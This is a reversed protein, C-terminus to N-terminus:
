WKMGLLRALDFLVEDAAAILRAKAELLSARDAPRESLQVYLKLNRSTGSPRLTVFSRKDESLYFRMGEEPFVAVNSFFFSRAAALRETRSASPDPAPMGRKVMLDTFADEAAEDGPPPLLVSAREAAESMTRHPRYGHDPDAAYKGKGPCIEVDTVRYGAIELGDRLARARLEEARHLHFLKRQIANVGEYQGVPPDPRYRNVYLALGESLTLDDLLDILTKGEAKAHAAVEAILLAALTGDKDRVHGGEGLANPSSPPGGLISFGNSEEFCGLNYDRVGPEYRHHAYLTSFRRTDYEEKEFVDLGNWAFSVAEALLSFGVWTKIWALGKREALETILDSTVHSQAIFGRRLLPSNEAELKRLRHALLLAWVEDAKLLTWEGGYIERQEPPVKVVVGMRDADPDTGILIDLEGFREEGHEAIFAEVAIRASSPDGPDPQQTYEFCPFFGDPENMSRHTVETIREFGASRLLRPVLRSGAGYFACYGIELSPALPALAAPDVIFSRMHELYAPHLDFVASSAPREADEPGVVVLRSAFDEIPPLDPVDAFDTKLVYDRYIREREANTLQAGTASTLKYGNYRKDNHSASIFVGLDAGFRVVAFSLEPFPCPEAFLHVRLGASLFLRAILSAFRPGGIRSDFGVVAGQLSNDAAFRAVAASLRLVTLDNFLNPGRLFPADVGFAAMTRLDGVSMVARGRIGGTGFKIDSFFAEFLHDWRADDVADAIAPVAAPCIRRVHPDTLWRELRPRVNEELVRETDAARDLIRARLEAGEAPSTSGAAVAAELAALERSASAAFHAKMGSLAKELVKRPDINANWVEYSM